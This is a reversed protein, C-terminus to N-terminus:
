CDPSSLWADDGFRGGSGFRTGCVCRASPSRSSGSGSSCDVTADGLRDALKGRAQLPPKSFRGSSREQSCVLLSTPMVSVADFSLQSNSSKTEPTCPTSWAMTSDLSPRTMALEAPSSRSEASLSAAADELSRLMPLPALLSKSRPATAWVWTSIPRSTVRTPFKRVAAGRSRCPATASLVQGHVLRPIVLFRSRYDPGVRDRTASGWAIARPEILGRLDDGDLGPRFRRPELEGRFVLAYQVRAVPRHGDRLEGRHHGLGRTHDPHKAAVQEFMARDEHARRTSFDASVDQLLYVTPKASELWGPVRAGPFSLAAGIGTFSTTAPPKPTPFVVKTPATLSIGGSVLSSSIVTALSPTSSRLPRSRLSVVVTARSKPRMVIESSITSYKNPAGPCFRNQGSHFSRASPATPATTSTSVRLSSSPKAETSKKSRRPIGNM